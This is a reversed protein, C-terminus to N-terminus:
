SKFPIHNGDQSFFHTNMKNTRSLPLLRWRFRSLSVDVDVYTRPNGSTPPRRDHQGSDLCVAISNHVWLSM